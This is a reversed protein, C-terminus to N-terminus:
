EEAVERHTKAMAEYEEAAEEFDEALESCHEKMRERQRMKGAGYAAGMSRHEASLRRMREAKEQYYRALAEHEQPTEASEVVLQELSTHGEHVEASAAGPAAVLLPLGLLLAISTKM